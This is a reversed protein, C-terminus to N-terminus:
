SKETKKNAYRKSYKQKEMVMEKSENQLDTPYPNMKADRM